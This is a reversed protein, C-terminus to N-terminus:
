QTWLMKFIWGFGKSISQNPLSQKIGIPAPSPLHLFYPIPSLQQGKAKILFPLSSTSSKKPVLNNKM